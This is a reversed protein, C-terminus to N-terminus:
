PLNVFSLFLCFSLSPCSCTMIRHSIRRWLSSEATLYISRKSTMHLRRGTIKEQQGGHHYDVVVIFLAFRSAFPPLLVTYVIFVTSKEHLSGDVAYFGAAPRAWVLTSPRFNLLVFTPTKYVQGTFLIFHFLFIFLYIFKDGHRGFHRCCLRHCIRRTWYHPIHNGKTVDKNDTGSM